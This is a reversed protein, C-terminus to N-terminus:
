KVVPKGAANWAKLGGDLNYLSTFGLDAMQATAKGSRVGGACYVFVPKTKDLKAVQQKFDKDYFNVLVAGALHSQKYEEPTRVDLVIKDKTTALKGEFDTPSLTKPSQAYSSITAGLVVVMSGIWKMTKM